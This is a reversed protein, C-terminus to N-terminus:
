IVYSIEKFGFSEEGNDKKIILKGINTVGKIIGKFTTGDTRKYFQSENLRYLNQKYRKHIVETQGAKLQLYNSELQKCFVGLARNLPM